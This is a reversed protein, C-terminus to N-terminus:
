EGSLRRVEDDSLQEIDSLLADEIVHALDAITPSEFFSRLSVEVDFTDRLRSCVQTALLSHGGLEGFFNDHVSIQPRGLLESWAKAIAEELPSRPAVFTRDRALALPDPSPLAARDVKGNPTLPLAALHLITAPVMYDPLRQQLHRRLAPGLTRAARGAGPDNALATGAAPAAARRPPLTAADRELLVLDFADPADPAWQLHATYGAAAARQAVAEPDVAAASAAAAAARIAAATAPGDPAALCAAARVAGQVRANPIGALARAGTGPRLREEWSDATLGAPPWTEWAVAAGRARAGVHLWVDYRYPTLENRATGRKLAIEVGGIAAETAAWADFFAPALVLEQEQAARRAVRARVAAAPETAAAQTLEVDAQLAGLLPLSRVDGVFIAGGPAVHPVLGRLVRELYAASPFYQVVSNLVVLDFTAAGLRATEDAAQALLRVQAWGAATVAAQLGALTVASFDTGWYAECDAALRWLLLGTGCGVELVRRPRRAALRAVTAEVWERMEAAPIPLGTYSSNWGVVNFTPDGAATARQTEDFVAQWQAVQGAEAGAGDRAGVVYAVLRRDGPQDERCLVVAEQVAPQARLTAEIEGLEIRYGRLKVQHDRRGVFEVTGDARYRALDGTRYVRAGARFPHAVFREATLAERRWYGRALGAGGIYLEGVVGIPVVERGEDLVYVEANAMPRGIHVRDVPGTYVAHTCWCTVETPGYVNLLRRGPAWRAVVDAQCAEGTVNLCELAPLDAYPLVALASAPLLVTTIAQDRMLRVLEPGPLLDVRPALCLRGGAGFAMMMEYAWGDFSFSSFQLVRTDPRGDIVRAQEITSNVMSRHEIMVGKPQGTSGSTYIVYALDAPGACGPLNGDPHREMAPWDTDLCV